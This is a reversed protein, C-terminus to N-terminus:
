LCDQIFFTLYLVTSELVMWSMTTIQFKVFSSQAFKYADQVLSRQSPQTWGTTFLTVPYLHSLYPSIGSRTKRFLKQDYVELHIHSWWKRDNKESHLLSKKTAVSSLELYPVDPQWCELSNLYFQIAKM